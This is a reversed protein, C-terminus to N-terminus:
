LKSRFVLRGIVKGSRLDSLGKNLNETDLHMSTIPYNNAKQGNGAEVLLQKFEGLTGCLSGSISINRIILDIASLKPIHGGMLGVLVLDGQSTKRPVSALLLKVAFALTSEAGVFDIVCTSLGPKLHMVANKVTQKEDAPDLLVTQLTEGGGGLAKAANLKAADIDVVVMQQQSQGMSSAFRVAQLGVGGAGIIVLNTPRVRAKRLAAFATLGSCALVAVQDDTLNPSYPLVFREEPVWVHSAFGGNFGKGGATGLMKGNYVPDELGCWPFVVVKEGISRERCEPGLAEVVGAIEHGLAGKWGLAKADKIGRVDSACLGSATVRVRVETGKLPDLHGNEEKFDERTGDVYGYLKM